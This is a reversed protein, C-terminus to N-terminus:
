RTKDLVRKPHVTVTVRQIVDAVGVRLISTISTNVNSNLLLNKLKTPFPM